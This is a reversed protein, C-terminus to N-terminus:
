HEQKQCELRQAPPSYHPTASPDADVMITPREGGRVLAVGGLICAMGGLIDLTLSEGGLLWGVLIAVLPNVYAYTTAQNVSVHRLLWVYAVYGLLSGFILLHFYSYVAAPTVRDWSLEKTEGLALGILALTLGGSIMQYASASLHSNHKRRHRLIVAGVAWAVSSAVVLLPGANQFFAHIGGLQREVL